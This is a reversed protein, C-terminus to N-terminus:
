LRGPCFCLKMQQKSYVPCSRKACKQLALCDLSLRQCKGMFDRMTSAIDHTHRVWAMWTLCSMGRTACRHIRLRHSCSYQSCFTLQPSYVGYGLYEELAQLPQVFPPCYKKVAVSLYLFCPCQVCQVRLLYFTDKVRSIPKVQKGDCSTIKRAVQLAIRGKPSTINAFVM